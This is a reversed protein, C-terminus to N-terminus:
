LNNFIRLIRDMQPKVSISLLATRHARSHQEIEQDGDNLFAIPIEHFFYEDRSGRSVVFAGKWYKRHECRLGTFFVTFVDSFVHLSLCEIRPGGDDVHM